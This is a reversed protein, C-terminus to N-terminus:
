LNVRPQLTPGAPNPPHPRQKLCGRVGGLEDRAKPGSAGAPYNDTRFFSSSTRTRTWCRGKQKETGSERNEAKVGGTKPPTGMEDTVMASGM